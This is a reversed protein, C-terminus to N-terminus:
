QLKNRQNESIERGLRLRDIKINHRIDVPFDAWLFFDQIMCSQPNAKALDNIERTFQAKVSDTLKTKQDRREIVLAPRLEGREHLPVLATRKIDPHRNFVAESNISYIWQNNHSIAHVARGCFWLRGLEDLWGLDGMRHWIKEGDMIKALHNAEPSQFYSKTVQPGECIIEGIEGVKLEEAENLYDIASKTHRIIKVTSGPVAYGVCTGELSRASLGALLERGSISSVPLCETAGYPTYTTGNPLLGSYWEHLYSRVPAGFMMLSKLTPFKIQRQLSFNALREWIAPSGGAFTVGFTHIANVLKEPNAKAPKSPDFDPVVVKAGLALTFMAFLPFGPLDTDQESIGYMKQILEVQQYFIDHTYVVGKPTGTGGSTFLIACPKEDQPTTLKLTSDGVAVFDSELISNQANASQLVPSQLVPTQLAVSENPSSHSSFDIETKSTLHQLDRAGRSAFKQLPLLWSPRDYIVFSRRISRFVKPFFLKAVFVEAVAILGEPEVKQIAMMLNKKGMGPDILVLTVGIKFLANVLIFFDLSPRVFLLVKMGESFGARELQTKLEDSRFKLEGRTMHTWSSRGWRDKGAPVSLAMAFPNEAAKEDILHAINM